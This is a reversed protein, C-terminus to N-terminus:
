RTSRPTLSSGGKGAARRKYREVVDLLRANEEETERAKLIRLEQKLHRAHAQDLQAQLGMCLRRLQEPDADAITAALTDPM